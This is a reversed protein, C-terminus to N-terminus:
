AQRRDNFVSENFIIAKSNVVQKGTIKSFDFPDSCIPKGDQGGAEILKQRNMNLYESESLLDIKNERRICQWFRLKFFAKSWRQMSKYQPAVYWMESLEAMTAANPLVWLRKTIDDKKKNYLFVAQSPRPSPMYLMAFFKKRMVNHILPDSALVFGVCYEEEDFIPNHRDICKRLEVGIDDSIAHGVELSDYKTQDYEAKLSLEGATKRQEIM